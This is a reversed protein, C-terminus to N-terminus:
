DWGGRKRGASLAGDDDSLRVCVVDHRAPVYRRPRGGPGWTISRVTGSHIERDDQVIGLHEFMDRLPKLAAILNDDDWRRAGVALVHLAPRYLRVRRVKLGYREFLAQQALAELSLAARARSRWSGHRHNPSCLAVAPMPVSLLLDM